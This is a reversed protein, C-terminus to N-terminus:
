TEWSAAKLWAESGMPEWLWILGSLSGLVVREAFNDKNPFFFFCCQSCLEMVERLRGLNAGWLVKSTLQFYLYTTRQLWHNARAEKEDSELVNM